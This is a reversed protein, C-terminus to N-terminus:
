FSPDRYQDAVGLRFYNGYYGNDYRQVWRGKKTLFLNATRNKPNSIFEYDQDLWDSGEKLKCDYERVTCHRADKVAIVEYANRDTYLLETAGMGIEPMPQVMREQLRNQLSGYMESM